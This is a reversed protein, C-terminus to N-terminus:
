RGRESCGLAGVADFLGHCFMSFLLFLLFLLFVGIRHGMSRDTAGLFYGLGAGALGTFLWHGAVGTVSRVIFLLTLDRIPDSNFSTQVASLMYSVNEFVQFGLGVFM